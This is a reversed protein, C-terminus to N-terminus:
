QQTVFGPKNGYQFRVATKEAIDELTDLEEVQEERCLDGKTEYLLLPLVSSKWVPRTPDTQDAVIVWVLLGLGIAALVIPFILWKWEFRICTTSIEVNGRAAPARTGSYVDAGFNRMHNTVTVSMNHFTENISAFTVSNNNLFPELWFAPSPTRITSVNGTNGDRTKLPDTICFLQGTDRNRYCSGGVVYSTISAIDELYFREVMYLCDLPVTINAGDKNWIVFTRGPIQPVQAINDLTYTKQDLECPTRLGTMNKEILNWFDVNPMLTSMPTTSVVTENLVGNRINAQYDKICPYMICAAAVARDLAIKFRWGDHDQLTTPAAVITLNTMASSRLTWMEPPLYPELSDSYRWQWTSMVTSINDITAHNFTFNTKYHLQDMKAGKTTDTCLSCAGMSSYSIGPKTEPFSCNGTSCFFDIQKNIFSPNFFSHIINGQLTANTQRTQFMNSGGYHTIPVRAGNLERMQICEETQLAQQTFPGIGIALITLVSAIWTPAHNPLTALLSVSGIISSKANEFLQFQNMPRPKKSFWIWKSQAIITAALAVLCARLLDALISVSANINIHLPWEPLTKTDYHSLMAIVSVIIAVAAVGAIIEWMWVKAPRRQRQTHVSGSDKPEDDELLQQDSWPTETQEQPAPILKLAITNM